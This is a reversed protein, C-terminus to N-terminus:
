VLRVPRRLCFRDAGEPKRAVPHRGSRSIFVRPGLHDFHPEHRQLGAPGRLHVAGALRHGKQRFGPVGGAGYLGFVGAM